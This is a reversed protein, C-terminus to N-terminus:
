ASVQERDRPATFEDATLRIGHASIGLPIGDHSTAAEVWSNAALFHLVVADPTIGLAARWQEFDDPTHLGLHVESPQDGWPRQITIYGSPLSDYLDTLKGLVEVASRQRSIRATTETKM